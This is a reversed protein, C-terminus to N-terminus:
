REYCQFFIWVKFFFQNKIQFIAHPIQHVKVQATSFDSFKCKSPSSKHFTHLTQALFICLLQTTFFSKHNWFHCSYNPSDVCLNNFTINFLDVTYLTKASPIYKKPCFGMLNWSKPSEVAQRFNNLNRDNKFDAKAYRFKAGNQLIKAIVYTYFHLHLKRSVETWLTCLLRSRLAGKYKKLSRLTKDRWFAQQIKESKYIVVHTRFIKWNITNM